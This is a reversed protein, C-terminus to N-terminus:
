GLNGELAKLLMLKHSMNLYNKKITGVKLVRHFIVFIIHNLPLNSYMYRIKDNKKCELSAVSDRPLM